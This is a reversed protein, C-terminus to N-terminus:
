KFDYKLSVDAYKVPLSYYLPIKASVTSSFIMDMLHGSLDGTNQCGSTFITMVHGDIDYKIVSCIQQKHMGKDIMNFVELTKAKLDKYDENLHSYAVLEYISMVKGKVTVSTRLYNLLILQENIDESRASIIHQEVGPRECGAITISLIV